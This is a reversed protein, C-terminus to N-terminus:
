GAGAAAAAAAAARKTPLDPSFTCEEHLREEERAAQEAALHSRDMDRVSRFLVSCFVVSFSSLHFLGPSPNRSPVSQILPSVRSTFHRAPKTEPKTKITTEDHTTSLCKRDTSWGRLDM